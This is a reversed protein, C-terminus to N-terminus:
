STVVSRASWGATFDYRYWGAVPGVVSHRHTSSAVALLNGEFFPGTIPVQAVPAHAPAPLREWRDLQGRRPHASRKGEELVKDLLLAVAHRHFENYPAPCSILPTGLLEQEHWLRALAIAAADISSVTLSPTIIGGSSTPTPPYWASENHQKILLEEMVISEKIDIEFCLKFVEM